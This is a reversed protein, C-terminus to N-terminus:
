TQDPPISAALRLGWRIAAQMSRPDAQNRGAIDFATGHDPSTRIIPLGLTTNVASDFALLKLPILGQDHYLAVVGDFDGNAAQRFVADPPWPGSIGTLGEAALKRLAPEVVRREEDGFMGGESAHPNVGSMALRPPRGLVAHLARHFIRTKAAVLETTLMALARRLSVHVTALVIHLRDSFFAMTADGGPFAAALYDTQGPFAFGAAALASKNVPPTVLVARRGSAAAAQCHETAAQLSQWAARGAEGSVEGFRPPFPFAPLPVIRHRRFDVRLGQSEAMRRLYREPGFILSSFSLGPDPSALAKLLVEPGVGHPDGLSFAILPETQLPTSM